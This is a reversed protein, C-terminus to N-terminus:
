VFLIRTVFFFYVSVEFSGKTKRPLVLLVSKIGNLEALSVNANLDCRDASEVPMIKGSVIPFGM